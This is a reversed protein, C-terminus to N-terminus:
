HLERKVTEIADLRDKRCYVLFYANTDNTTERFVEERDVISVVSDNYKLWRASDRSDRQYVFYHGSSATGRHIFVSRLEYDYEPADVWTLHMERRCDEVRKHLSKVETELDQAEIATDESLEPTLLEGLEERISAFHDLADKFQQPQNVNKELKALRERAYELENRFTYILARKHVAVRDTEDVEVYRGLNIEEPFKLYANSKFIRGKERDYQVRQLQIQLVPPLQLLSVTRRASRGEIEVLTDDFVADLGDYIDRDVSTPPVDVLLSFFPEEQSRIPDSTPGGDADRFSLKQRNKGYFISKLLSENEKSSEDTMNAKLAAEIQFMVNDMCETVDNQRGFAMYNSVEVELQENKTQKINLVSPRPHPRPPLPPAIASSSECGTALEAQPSLRSSSDISALEHSPLQDVSRGRKANREDVGFVTSSSSRSLSPLPSAETMEFDDDLVNESGAVENPSSLQPLTSSPTTSSSSHDILMPVDEDKEETKRKGLVSPSKSGTHSDKTNVSERASPELIILDDDDDKAAKGQVSPEQNKEKTVEAEHEEKTPVLALYALETEPTVASLPSHILQSFLTQLLLVFRRSRDIEAGTVLRGGVRIQDISTANDAPSFALVAERLERVTFFYQLLSNLYCTNAVNTIGVPTNINASPGVQWSSTSADLSQEAKASAKLRDSQRFEALALLASQMKSKEADDKADSVRVQYVMLITDEDADKEVELARYAREPSMKGAENQLTEITGGPNEPEKSTELLVDLLESKKFHAILKCAERLVKRREPHTVEELRKAFAQGLLDDENAESHIDPPPLRLESYANILESHTVFGKSRELVVKTSLTGSSRANSIALLAELFNPSNTPWCAIQSDYVRLISEDSLDPTCGIASYRDALPDIAPESSTVPGSRAPPNVQTWLQTSNIKTLDDGGAFEVMRSKAPSLKIRTERKMSADNTRNFYDTLWIGLELWARALRARNAQGMPSRHDIDPAVILEGNSTLSYGLISLFIDCSIDDWPMSKRFTKGGIPLARTEGKFLVDDLARWIFNVSSAQAQAPTQSIGPSEARANLLNQWVEQGLVSPFFEQNSFLIRKGTTSWAWSLKLWCLSPHNRRPFSHHPATRLSLPDFPLSPDPLPPKTDEYLAQHIAEHPKVAKRYDHIPEFRWLPVQATTIPIPSPPLESFLCWSLTKCCFFLNPHPRIGDLEAKTITQFGVEPEVQKGEVGTQGDESRGQCAEDEGARSRNIWHGLPKYKSDKPPEEVEVDLTEWKWIGARSGGEGETALLRPTSWKGDNRCEPQASGPVQISNISSSPLSQSPVVPTLPTPLPPSKKSATSHDRDLERAATSTSPPAFSSTEVRINWGQDDTSSKKVPLNVSIPEPARPIRPRTRTRWSSSRPQTSPRSRRPVSSVIIEDEDESDEVEESQQPLTSRHTTTPRQTTPRASSPSSSSSSSSSFFHSPALPAHARPRSTSRSHLSSSNSLHSPGASMSAYTARRPPSESRPPSEEHSAM